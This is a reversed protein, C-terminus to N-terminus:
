VLLCILKQRQAFSYVAEIAVKLKSAFGRINDNSVEFLSVEHGADQLLEKEARLGVDEGGPQQYYNHVLLVRM